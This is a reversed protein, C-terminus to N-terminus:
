DHASAITGGAVVTRGVYAVATQGPTIARIPQDFVIRVDHDVVLRAPAPDMNSRIKARVRLPSRVAGIPGWVVEELTLSRKLLGKEPGVVVKRERPEIGIVYLPRGDRSSIGLGRRQGITFGAIGSHRGLPRGDASVMEGEELAGPSVNRLFERYGGAESVFCIEQSDPKFAVPLGWESALRRTEDKDPLDGLPFMLRGLKAGQLMYLVYSQDKQTCRASLLAWRGDRTRRIRAYHGTALAEAGFEDLRELLPDFKVFRNCQVCPNPTRGVAYEQVFNQIVTDRFLERYNLVYHPIGLARAVRRADEVAGLSCCGSHRPDTQSEQWIQLTVGVVDYGRRLLLGAAVSSDVGGSM